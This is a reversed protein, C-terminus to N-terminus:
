PDLTAEALAWGTEIRVFRLSQTKHVGNLEAHVTIMATLGSRRVQWDATLQANQSTLADPLPIGLTIPRETTRLQPLTWARQQTRLPQGANLRDLQHQTTATAASLMQHLQAETQERALVTRQEALIHPLVMLLTSSIVILNLVIVIGGWGSRAICRYGTHGPKCRAPTLHCTVRPDHAYTRPHIPHPETKM